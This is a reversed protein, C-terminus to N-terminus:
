SWFYCLFITIMNICIHVERLAGLIYEFSVVARFFVHFDFSVWAFLAKGMTKHIDVRGM